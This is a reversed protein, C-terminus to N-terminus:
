CKLLILINEFISIKNNWLWIMESLFKKRDITKVGKRKKIEVKLYNNFSEVHQTHVNTIQNVFEYKHCVSQHIYGFNTLTKYTRHEDTHILSGVVVRSCIIPLMTEIKKNDIVEAWVRTIKSEKIEVICIAETKNDTSRGRHSKCKYNMMTEDIQIIRGPGGLKPQFDNNVKMKEILVSFLKKFTPQSIKITKLISYQSIGVSYRILVKLITKMSIGFNYFLSEDRVSRRKLYHTCQKNFCRWAYDDVYKKSLVLKMIENCSGSCLMEMKFIGKDFFFNLLEHSTMIIIKEELNELNM